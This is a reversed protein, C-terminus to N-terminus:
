IVNVERGGKHVEGIIWATEGAEALIDLVQLGREKAVVLVMGIGMNFTRFMETTDINGKEQLLSFIPPAAWARREVTVQCDIPITRPINSYFGGGTIHAMAHVECQQTVAMVSRYYSKHPTLLVDGLNAGLEPVYQNVKYGCDDFLVKRVLSFGNTHLGSSAIGVVVDGQQVRSGDIIAQRDVLGVICGALDFEGDVYVSPMEATEGGILACGAERCAVAMGKVVEEVIRPELKSTAFYDLFLLPKAGQVLIDNVCHNVLDQGITDYKGMLTAIKVKTGVGDISSVLVPDAMGETPLRMMGGFAGIDTLVNESFTSQVCEKIRFVAEDGAEIDVGAAKYTTTEEAM